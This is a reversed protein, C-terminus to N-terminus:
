EHRPTSVGGMSTMLMPHRLMVMGGGWPSVVGISYGMMIHTM